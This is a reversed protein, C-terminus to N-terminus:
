GCDAFDDYRGGLGTHGIQLLRRQGNRNDAAIIQLGALDDVDALQLRQHGSKPDGLVAGFHDEVNAADAAPLDAAFRANRDIDIADIKAAM